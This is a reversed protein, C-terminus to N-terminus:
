TFLLVRNDKGIIQEKTAVTDTAKQAAWVETVIKRAVDFSRLGSKQASRLLWSSIEERDRESMAECGVVFGPWVISTNPVESVASKEEYEKLSQITSKVYHQLALPHVNRIRRYFLVMLASHVAKVLHAIVGRSETDSSMHEDQLAPMKWDCIDHELTRISEASLAEGAVYYKQNEMERELNTTRTILQLLSAPIGYIQEFVEPESWLGYTNASMDSSISLPSSRPLPAGYLRQHMGPSSEYPLDIAPNQDGIATLNPSSVYVSLSEEIARLYLFINHLLVVKKSKKDSTIGRYFILKEADLLLHRAGEFHGSTAQIMQDANPDTRSRVFSCVCITVMSLIAMLLEKYRVREQTSVEVKLAAKLNQKALCQFSEAVGWWHSEREGTSSSQRDLNYASISLVAYFLALRTHTEQSGIMLSGMIELVKPLYLIKWPSTGGQLPSYYKLVRNKYHELLFPASDPFHKGTNNTRIQLLPSSITSSSLMHMLDNQALEGQFPETSSPLQFAYGTTLLEMSSNPLSNDKNLENLRLWFDSETDLQADLQEWDDWSAPFSTEYPSRFTASVLSEIVEDQPCATREVDHVPSSSAVTAPDSLSLVGFPGIHLESPSSPLETELDELLEDITFQTLGKTM